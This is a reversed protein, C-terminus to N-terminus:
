AWDELKLALLPVLLDSKSVLTALWFGTAPLVLTSYSALFEM